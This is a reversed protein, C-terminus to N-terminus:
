NARIICRREESILSLKWLQLNLCIKYKKIVKEKERDNSGCVTFKVCVWNKEVKRM